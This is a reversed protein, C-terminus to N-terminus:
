DNLKGIIDVHVGDPRVFLSYGKEVLRKTTGASCDHIVVTDNHVFSNKDVYGLTLSANSDEDILQALLAKMQEKNMAM